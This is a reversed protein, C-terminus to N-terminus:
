WKRCGVLGFAMVACVLFAGLKKMLADEQRNKVVMNEFFTLFQEESM